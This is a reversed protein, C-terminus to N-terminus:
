SDTWCEGCNSWIPVDHKCELPEELPGLTGINDVMATDLSEYGGCTCVGDLNTIKGCQQVHWTM